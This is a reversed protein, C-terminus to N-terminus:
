YNSEKVIRLHIKVANIVQSLAIIFSWVFKWSDWLAWAAISSSSTIATIINISNDCKESHAIYEGLYYLEFKLQSLENWYKKQICTDDM